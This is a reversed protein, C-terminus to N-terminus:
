GGPVVVRSGILVIGIWVLPNAVAVTGDIFHRMCPDVDNVQAVLFVAREQRLALRLGGSFGVRCVLQSFITSDIHRRRALRRLVITRGASEQVACATQPWRSPRM